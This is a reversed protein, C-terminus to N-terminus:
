SKLLREGTSLIILKNFSKVLMDDVYVEMTEGILHKFMKNAPCEYM